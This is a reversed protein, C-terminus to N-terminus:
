EFITTFFLGGLGVLGTLAGGAILGISLFISSPKRSEELILLKNIDADPLCQRVLEKEEHDLSEIKNVVMGQVKEEALLEAPVESIKKYRRTKVLVVVNDATPWLEDPIDNMSGYHKKLGVLQKVYSNKESVIPYYMYNINEETGEWEYVIGFLDAFHPGVLVHNNEIENGDELYQLNVELPEATTGESVRYEKYGVFGVCVGIVIVCIFLRFM